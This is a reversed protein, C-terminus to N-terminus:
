MAEVKTAALSPWPPVSILSAACVEVWVGTTVCGCAYGLAQMVGECSGFLSLTPLSVAPPAGSDFPASAQSIPLGARCAQPRRTPHAFARAGLENRSALKVARATGVRDTALPPCPACLAGKGVMGNLELPVRGYSSRAVSEGRVRHPAPLPKAAPTEFPSPLASPRMRRSAHGGVPARSSPNRATGVM